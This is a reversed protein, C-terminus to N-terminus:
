LKENDSYKKRIQGSLLQYIAAYEPRESLWTLHKNIVVSDGRSAPGTQVQSPLHECAKAVTEKMLPHMMGFSLQNQQLIDEAVSYLYNSFNCSFVAAIHLISRQEGSTFVPIANLDDAMLTLLQRLNEDEAEICLPVQLFSVERNESFTQMPYFIGCPTHPQLSDTGLTGSTHVVPTRNNDRSLMAATVGVADDPISLIILGAPPLQTLPLSLAQCGLPGAMNEASDM